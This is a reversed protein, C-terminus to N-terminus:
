QDIELTRVANRESWRELEAVAVLKKRGRRVWRLDAAIHDTFYDCSVGLAQAAEVGFARSAPRSRTPQAAHEDRANGGIVDM